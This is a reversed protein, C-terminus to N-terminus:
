GDPRFMVSRVPLRSDAPADLNLDLDVDLDLISDFELNRNLDFDLVLDM